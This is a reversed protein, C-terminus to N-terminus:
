QAPACTATAAPQAAAAVRPERHDRGAEWGAAAPARVSATFHIGHGGSGDDREGALTARKVEVAFGRRAARRAAPKKTAFADGFVFAAEKARAAQAGAAGRRVSVRCRALPPAPQEDAAPAARRQCRAKRKEPPYKLEEALHEGPQRRTKM